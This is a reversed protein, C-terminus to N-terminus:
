FCHHLVADNAKQSREVSKRDPGFKGLLHGLEHLLILVRFETDPLVVPGASRAPIANFYYYHGALALRTTVFPGVINILITNTERITRAATVVPTNAQFRPAGLDILKFEASTLSETAGPGFFEACDPRELRKSADAIARNLARRTAALNKAPVTGAGAGPSNPLVNDHLVRPRAEAVRTLLAETIGFLTAVAVALFPWRAPLSGGIVELFIKM